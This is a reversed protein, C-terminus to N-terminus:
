ERGGEIVRLPPAVPTIVGQGYEVIAREEHNDCVLVDEDSSEPSVRSTAPEGCYDCVREIDAM